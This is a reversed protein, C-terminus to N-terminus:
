LNIEQLENIKTWIIATTIKYNPYVKELCKKYKNLQRYYEASHMYPEGTKFDIIFLEGAILSLMDIRIEQNNQTDYLQLESSLRNEWFISLDKNRIVSIAENYAKEFDTYPLTTNNITAYNKWYKCPIEPLWQLLLHVFEGYKAELFKNDDMLIMDLKSYKKAFIDDIKININNVNQQNNHIVCEVNEGISKLIDDYNDIFAFSNKIQNYWSNENISINGKRAFVALYDEARTLAVYMLRKSEQIANEKIADKMIKIKQNNIESINLVCFDNLCLIEDSKQNVFDADAIIVIPAQLGKSAHATMLHVCNNTTSISKRIITEKNNFNVLFQELSLSEQSCFERSIDLLTYFAEKSTENFHSFLLQSDSTLIYSFFDFSTNDSKSIYKCLKDYILSFNNLYKSGNNKFFQWLNSNNRSSCLYFLEDETINFFPGRLVRAFLLDDNPHLSFEALAIVDEIILEDQLKILDEGSCHINLQSLEKSVLKMIEGRHQFLILIDKELINREKSPIYMNPKLLEKVFNSISKALNKKSDYQLNDNFKNQILPFIDVKGKVNERASSHKEEKFINQFNQNVFEIISQASRYSKNLSVEHFRQGCSACREKIIDHVKNFISYNAGQFSYISQKSDGVIFVTKNSEALSFFDEIIPLLIEWQLLSTDQAEDILLHELGMCLRYLTQPNDNIEKLSFYILDDFDLLQLEEKLKTYKNNLLFCIKFFSVNFKILKEINIENYIEFIVNSLTNLEEHLNYKNIIKKPLIVKKIEGTMTIFLPFIEKYNNGALGRLISAYEANYENFAEIIKNYNQNNKIYNQITLKIYEDLNNIKKEFFNEFIDSIKETSNIEFRYLFKRIISFSNLITDFLGPKYFILTKFDVQLEKNSILELYCKYLLDRQQQETVISSSYVYHLNSECSSIIDNCFSHITQIKLKNEKLNTIIKNFDVSNNSVNLEHLYEKLNKNSLNKLFNLKDSVRNQMEVAANKTFTICLIANPSVNNILLALIRDILSKTKGTGASASVWVSSKIDTIKNM